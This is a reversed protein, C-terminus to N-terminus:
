NLHEGSDSPLSELHSRNSKGKQENGLHPEFVVTICSGLFVLSVLVILTKKMTAFIKVIQSTDDWWHIM